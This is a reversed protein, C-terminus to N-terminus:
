PDHDVFLDSCVGACDKPKTLGLQRALRSEDLRVLLDMFIEFGNQDHLSNRLVVMVECSMALMNSTGRRKCNVDAIEVELVDDLEEIAKFSVFQLAQGFGVLRRM